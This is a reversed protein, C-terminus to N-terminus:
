AAPNFAWNPVMHLCIRRGRQGWQQEALVRRLAALWRSENLAHLAWLRRGPLGTALRVRVLNESVAEVHTRALGGRLVSVPPEVFFVRHNRTLHAAIHHDRNTRGDLRNFAFLVIDM